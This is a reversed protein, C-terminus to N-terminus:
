PLTGCRPRCSDEGRGHLHKWLGITTLAPRVTKEVDTSTNGMEAAKNAAAADDEGRGHLHKFM